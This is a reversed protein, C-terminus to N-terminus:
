RNVDWPSCHPWSVSVFSGNLAVAWAALTKNHGPQALGVIGRWRVVALITFLAANLGLVFLAYAFSAV